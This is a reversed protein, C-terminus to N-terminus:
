RVGTLVADPLWTVCKPFAVLLGVVVLQLGIFPWIGIYMHRLTIEPSGKQQVVIGGIAMAIAVPSWTVYAAIVFPTMIIVGTTISIIM